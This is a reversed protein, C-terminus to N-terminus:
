SKHWCARTARFAQQRSVLWPVARNFGGAVVEGSTGDRVMLTPKAILGEYLGSCRLRARERNRENTSEYAQRRLARVPQTM